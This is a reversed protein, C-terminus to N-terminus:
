KKVKVIKTATDKKYTAQLVVKQGVKLKNLESKKITVKAVGKKNTKINYTKNDFKFTIKQNKHFKGDSKRLQLPIVVKKASKKVTVKPISVSHYVKVDFTLHATSTMMVRITYKGTKKPTPIVLLGRSNTKATLIEGNIDYRVKKNAFMKGNKKYIIVHIKEKDNPHTKFLKLKFNGYPNNVKYKYFLYYNGIKTFDYDHRAWRIKANKKDILHAKGTSSVFYIKLNYTKSPKFQIKTFERLLIYYHINEMGREAFIDGIPKTDQAKYNSGKEKAVIKIFSNKPFAKGNDNIIWMNSDEANLDYGQFWINSEALYSPTKTVANGSSKGLVQEEQNVAAKLSLEEQNNVAQLIDGDQSEASQLVESDEDIGVQQLADADNQALIDDLVVSENQFVNESASVAGITFVALLILSFILMKRKM